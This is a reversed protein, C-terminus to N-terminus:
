TVTFLKYFYDDMWQHRFIQALSANLVFQKHFESFDKCKHQYLTRYAHHAKELEDPDVFVDALAELVEEVSCFSLGTATLYPRLQKAAEGSTRGYV